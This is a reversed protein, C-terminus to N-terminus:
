ATVGLREMLTSLRQVYTHHQLVTERGHRAIEQRAEPHALYYAAKEALERPTRFVDLDRGVTFQEELVPRYETLLFGGCALVDYVRMPVGEKIQPHCLNLNIASAAYVEPTETEYHLSRGAYAEVLNGVWERKGWYGDGYITLGLPQVASLFAARMRSAALQLMLWTWERGGAPNWRATEELLRRQLVEIGEEWCEQVVRTVCQVLPQVLARNQELYPRSLRYGTAGVYTLPTPPPPFLGNPLFRDFATAAPLYDTKEGFIEQLWPLHSRDFVLALDFCSELQRDELYPTDYFWCVRKVDAAGM